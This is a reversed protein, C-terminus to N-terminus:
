LTIYNVLMEKISPSNLTRNLFHKGVKLILFINEQIKKSIRDENPLYVRMM